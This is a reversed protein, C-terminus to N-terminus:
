LIGNLSFERECQCKEVSKSFTELFALIISVIKTIFYFQCQLDCIKKKDETKRVKNSCQSVNKHVIKTRTKYLPYNVLVILDNMFNATIKLIESNFFHM